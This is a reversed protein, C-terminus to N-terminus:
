GETRLVEATQHTSNPLALPSALDPWAQLSPQGRLLPADLFDLASPSTLSPSTPSLAGALHSATGHQPPYGECSTNTRAALPDQRTRLRAEQLLALNRAPRTSLVEGEVVIMLENVIDGECLIQVGPLFLEVHVAALVADAFKAKCNKFLYCHRVTSAYLHRMVRRRITLPYKQLVTEEMNQENHFHLELHEKLTEHLAQPVNNASSFQHLNTMRDRFVKSRKDAKVMLMSVTGLIYAAVVLNLAMYFVMFCSEAVSSTGFDADGLGTYTSISFYYSYIYRVTTGHGQFRHAARGVWSNDPAFMELRAILYFSCAAWHMLFFVYLQNRLMMLAMQSMQMRYEVYQFYDTLRYLRVLKLLCILGLCLALRDDGVMRGAAALAVQDWPLTSVVDYVFKDQLYHNFIVKPDGELQGDQNPVALYRAKIVMDTIFIATFIYQQVAWFDNYPSLGPHQNFSLRFPEFVATLVSALVTFRWWLLWRADTPLLLFARQQTEREDAESLYASGASGTDSGKASGFSTGRKLSAQHKM